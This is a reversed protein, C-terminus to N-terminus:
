TAMFPFKMLLGLVLAILLALTTNIAARPLRRTLAAIILFIIYLLGMCFLGDLVFYHAPSTELREMPILHLSPALSGVLFTLMFLICQAAISLARKM